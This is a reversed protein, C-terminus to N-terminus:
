FYTPINFYGDSFKIWNTESTTSCQLLKKDESIQVNGSIDIIEDKDLQKYLEDINHIGIAM